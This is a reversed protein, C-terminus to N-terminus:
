KVFSNKGASYGDFLQGGFPELVTETITYVEEKEGTRYFQDFARAYKKAFEENFQRLNRIIWKGSGIWQGNTRLYFEHITDALVNATFIAEARNTAGKLDELADTICYRKFDIQEQDWPEPGSSLIEAAEKKIPHIHDAGTIPIGETVMRPLSPRARKVDEKVFYQYSSENYVFAEVPWNLAYFSERYGNELSFDFVVIDLDSTETGEGRVVSGALLAADCQPFREDVIKKADLFAQDRM